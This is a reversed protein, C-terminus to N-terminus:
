KRKTTSSVIEQTQPDRKYSTTQEGSAAEINVEIAPSEVTVVPAAVDVHVDAAKQEPINVTVDAAPPAHVTTRADVNIPPAPRDALAKLEGRLDAMAKAAAPPETPEPLEQAVSVPIRLEDSDPDSDPNLDLKARGENPTMLGGNVYGLVVDMTEKASGRLLGEEVFNAYIGAARDRDTLLNTNISQELRTYWPALTHVVHALFMQEASAYTTNKSEAFVMIPNVRFFRCVEEVQLRRTEVQQADIGTMSTNMWKASRDLLMAKGANEPGGLETDIWKRLQKYQDDKLTGEVSYVGSARVGNKQMRAQQEETAMALGIAERAIHVAELGMWSNWSPGKVHWIAQAPFNQVSGNEAIVKYKLTFDDERTVTVQGPTFPILEAITGPAFQGTIPNRSVRNIFSFANGCLVVHMALMEWYEFGTQWANPRYALVDYLPHNKAPLRTKGDASEQMLKLPVQAIGEGIVRMCAFVTSVEAATKVNVVKGAASTRQGLMERLIEYAGSAKRHWPLFRDLISM